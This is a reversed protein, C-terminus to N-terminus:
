SGALGAECLSRERERRAPLGSCMMKPDRCDRKGIFVWRSLEACAGALDGAKAKRSATSACFAPAGVNFAFRTFAARTKMPLEAPLCPAIASGHALLDERLFTQCEAESYDRGVVVGGTHGACATPIGALDRYARHVWGEDSVVMPAAMACAALVAATLRGSVDSKNPM